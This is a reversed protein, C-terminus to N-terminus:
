GGPPSPDVAPAQRPDGLRAAYAWRNARLWAGWTAADTGFDQGTLLRLIELAREPTPLPRGHLSREGRLSRLAITIPHLRM